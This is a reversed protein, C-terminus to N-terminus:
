AAFVESWPLASPQIWSAGYCVPIKSLIHWQQHQDPAIRAGTSVERTFSVLPLVAACCM